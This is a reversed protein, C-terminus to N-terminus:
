NQPPDARNRADEYFDATDQPPTVLREADARTQDRTALTSREAAAISEREAQTLVAREIMAPASGPPADALRADTWSAAEEDPMIQCGCLIMAALALLSSSKM